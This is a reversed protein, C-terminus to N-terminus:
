HAEGDIAEVVAVEDEGVFVANTVKVNFLHPNIRHEGPPIIGVQPGKQGGNMLFKEGDQYM